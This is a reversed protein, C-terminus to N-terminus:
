KARELAKELARRVIVQTRSSGTIALTVSRKM